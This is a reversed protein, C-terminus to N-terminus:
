NSLDPEKLTTRAVVVRSARRAILTRSLWNRLPMQNGAAKEVDPILRLRTYRGVHPCASKEGERSTVQLYQFATSQRDDFRPPDGQFAAASQSSAAGVLAAATVTAHIRNRM